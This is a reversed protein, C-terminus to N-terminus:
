TCNVLLFQLTITPGALQAIRDPLRQPVLALDPVVETAAKSGVVGINQKVTTCFIKAVVNRGAQGFKTQVRQNVFGAM